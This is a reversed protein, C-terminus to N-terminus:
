MKRLRRYRAVDPLSRVVVVTGVLAALGVIVTAAVGVIEM